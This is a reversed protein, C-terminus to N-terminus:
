YYAVATDAAVTDAEVLDYASAPATYPDDIGTGRGFSSLFKGVVYSLTHGTYEVKTKFIDSDAYMSFDLGFDFDPSLVTLTPLNIGFAFNHDDVFDALTSNGVPAGPASSAILYDGRTEFTLTIDSEVRIMVKDASSSVNSADFTLRSLDGVFSIADSASGPKLKLGICISLGKDKGQLLPNSDLCVFATGELSQLFSKIRDSMSAFGYPMMPMAFTDFATNLITLADDDLAFAMVTNCATPVYQMFDDSIEKLYPIQLVNGDTDCVKTETTFERDNADSAILVWKGNLYDLFTSFPMGYSRPVINQEQLIKLSQALSGTNLYVNCLNRPPAAAAIKGSFFGDSRAAEITAKLQTADGYILWILGDVIYIAETKGNEFRTLGNDASKTFSCENTLLDMLLDPDTVSAVLNYLAVDGSTSFSGFIAVTSLDLARHAKCIIQTAVPPLQSLEQPFDSPVKIDDETIDIGYIGLTKDVDLTVVYDASAPVVDLVASDKSCSTATLTLAAALWISLSSKM